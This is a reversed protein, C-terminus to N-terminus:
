KYARAIKRAINFAIKNKIFDMYEYVRPDPNDADKEQCGERNLEKQFESENCWKLGGWGIWKEKSTKVELVEGIPKFTACYERFQQEWSKYSDGFMMYYYEGEKEDKLKIKVIM